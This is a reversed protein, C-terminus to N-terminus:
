SVGICTKGYSGLNNSDVAVKVGHGAHLSDLHHLLSHLLGPQLSVVHHLGQCVVGGVAVTLSEDIQWLEGETIPKEQVNFTELTYSKTADLLAVLQFKEWTGLM